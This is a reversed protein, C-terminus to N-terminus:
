PTWLLVTLFSLRDLRAALEINARVAGVPQLPVVSIEDGNDGPETDDPSTTEVEPDEVTTAGTNTIHGIPVGPPYLSGALGSTLLLDGPRLVVDSDVEVVPSRNAGRGEVRGLAQSPGVRTAVRVRADSILLVISESSSVQELRGVLGAGTVVAMGPKLGHNSGKDIVVTAEFTTPAGSIVRATVQPIEQAFDIETDRLFNALVEQASAERAQAGELDDLQRRLEANEAELKSYSTVGRWADAVPSFAWRTVRTLPSFVTSAGSKVSALPAFDRGDLTMLTIATLALLLLVFRHRGGRQFFDM